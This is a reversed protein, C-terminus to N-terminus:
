WFSASVFFESWESMKSKGDRNINTLDTRSKRQHHLDFPTRKLGTNVSFRMVGLARNVSKTLNQGDEM